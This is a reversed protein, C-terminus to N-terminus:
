FDELRYVLQLLVSSMYFKEDLKVFFFASEMILRLIYCRAQSLYVVIEYGSSIEQGIKM